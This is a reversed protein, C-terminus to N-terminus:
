SQEIMIALMLDARASWTNERAVAKREEALANGQERLASRIGRVFSDPDAAWFVLQRDRYQELELVPTTVVPKGLSFYEFIKVPNTTRAINGPRFPILCCDLANVFAPVDNYPKVGLWHFNQQRRLLDFGAKDNVPGIFVFQVDPAAVMATALLRYDLWPGLYGVYGARPSSIGTLEADAAKDQAQVAFWEADAANPVRVIRMEPSQSLLRRELERATVFAAASQKLLRREAAAYREFSNRGVFVSFDDICDYYIRSFDAPGIVNGWYPQEVLAVSDATPVASVIERKLFAQYVRQTLVNVASSSTRNIPIGLPIKLRLLPPGARAGRQRVRYPLWALVLHYWVARVIAWIFGKTRGSFFDKWSSPEVYLVRHGRATFCDALKQPRQHLSDYPIPAFLVIHM